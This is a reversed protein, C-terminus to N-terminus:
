QGMHQRMQMMYTQMKMAIEKDNTMYYM